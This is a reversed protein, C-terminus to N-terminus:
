SRESNSRLISLWPCSPRMCGPGISCLSVQLAAQYTDGGRARPTMRGAGSKDKSVARLVRARWAPQDRGAAVVLTEDTPPGPLPPGGVLEEAAQVAMVILFIQGSLFFIHPGGVTCPATRRSGPRSPVKLADLEDSTSRDHRPM